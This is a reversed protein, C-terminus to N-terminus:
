AAGPSNSFYKKYLLSGNSAPAPDTSQLQGRQVTSSQGKNAVKSPPLTGFQAEVFKVQHLKLGMSVATFMEPDEDHPLESILMDPYSGVKTQVTLLAANQWLQKIQEYVSRFEVGPLIMSLEIDVPEFIISDTIVTGDEVPHEMTKARESVTAKVPRAGDFVQNFDADLVAVVDASLSPVLSNLLAM